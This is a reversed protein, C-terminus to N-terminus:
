TSRPTGGELPGAVHRYGSQVLRIPLCHATLVFGSARRVSRTRLTTPGFKFAAFIRSHVRILSRPRDTAM